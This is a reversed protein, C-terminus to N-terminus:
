ECDGRLLLGRQLRDGKAKLPLRTSAPSRPLEWVRCACPALSRGESRSPTRMRRRSLTALSRWGSSLPSAMVFSLRSRRAGRKCAIEGKAKLPLSLSRTALSRRESKFLLRTRRTTRLPLRDGTAELFPSSNTYASATRTPTALSRGNAQIPSVPEVVALSRGESQPPSRVLGDDSLVLRDRGSRLPTATRCRCARANTALVRERRRGLSRRESQFLSRLDIRQCATEGAEISLRRCPSPCLRDGGSRYLLFFVGVILSSAYYRPSL